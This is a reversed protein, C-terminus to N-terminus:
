EEETIANQNPSWSPPRGHTHGGFWREGTAKLVRGNEGAQRILADCRVCLPLIQRRWSASDAPDGSCATM